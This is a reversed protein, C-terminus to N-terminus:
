SVVEPETKDLLKPLLVTKLLANRARDSIPFAMAAAARRTRDSTDRFASPIPQLGSANLRRVANTTAAYADGAAAKAFAVPCLPLTLDEDIYRDHVLKLLAFMGFRTRERQRLSGTRAGRWDICALGRLLRVIRDDDVAGDIFADIDELQACSPATANTGKSVLEQTSGAKEAEIQARRIVKILNDVLSGEAWVVRPNGAPQWTYPQTFRFPIMHERIRTSALAAALRFERSDDDAYKLWLLSLLPVPSVHEKDAFGRSRAILHDAEGLAILVEQLATACEARALDIIASELQRNVRGVSAPANKAHAARRFRDLWVDLAEILANRANPKGKVDWRELPTAFYALGNRVHFGYRAFSSIGRDVALGAVARSFDVGTAAPRSGVHARGESMLAAIEPLGAPASWLPVWLEDRSQKEDTASATGYGAGSARVSFPYALTGARAWELRRTASSCFLLSGEILLIFDWPNVRGGADYGVTRNAGGAQGPSFQGVAARYIGSTPIGFLAARLLSEAKTQDDILVEALRQMQNNTFDLRGDNGGTGLLPPYRTGDATLILAADLWKLAADDLEDRLRRIIEPKNAEDPKENIGLAAIVQRATEIARRFEQFRLSTSSDIAAIGSANDKPYFGSGGNWPAIIPTPVYETCFFRVLADADLTTSLLFNEGEWWARAESDAQESVLRFIGLGKLYAGLPEPTCGGLKITNM